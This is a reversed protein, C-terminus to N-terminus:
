EVAWEALAAQLESEDLTGNLQNRIMELKGILLGVEEAYAERDDDTFYTETQTTVRGLGRIRISVVAEEHEWATTAALRERAAKEAETESKANETAVPDPAVEATAFDIELLDMDLRRRLANVEVLAKKAAEDDGADLAGQLDAEWAELDKKAKEKAAAEVAAKREATLASAQGQAWKQAELFTNKGGRGLFQTAYSVLDNSRNEPKLQSWLPALIATYVRVSVGKKRRKPGSFTSAVRWYWQLTVPLYTIGVEELSESAQKFELTSPDVGAVRFDEVLGDAIAWTRDEVSKAASLTHVFKM